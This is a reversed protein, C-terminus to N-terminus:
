PVPTSNPPYHHPLSIHNQLKLATGLAFWGTQAVSGCKNLKRQWTSHFSLMNCNWGLSFQWGCGLRISDSTIQTPVAFNWSFIARVLRWDPMLAGLIGVSFRHLLRATQFRSLIRWQPHEQALFLTSLVFVAKTNSGLGLYSAGSGEVLVIQMGAVLFERGWRSRTTRCRRFLSKRWNTERKRAAGVQLARKVRFDGGWISFKRRKKSYQVCTVRKSSKQPSKLDFSVM